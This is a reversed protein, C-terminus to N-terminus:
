IEEGTFEAGAGEQAPNSPPEPQQAAGPQHGSAVGSKVQRYWRELEQRDSAAPDHGLHKAIAERNFGLAAFAGVTKEVDFAGKVPKAPASPPTTAGMAWQALAAGAAEDLPKGHGIIDLHEDPM